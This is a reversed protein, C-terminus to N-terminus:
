LSIPGYRCTLPRMPELRYKLCSYRVFIRSRGAAANAAEALGRLELPLDAEGIRAVSDATGIKEAQQSLLRLPAFGFRVITLAAGFVILCLPIAALGTGTLLRWEVDRLLADTASAHQGVILLLAQQGPADAPQALFYFANDLGDTAETNTEGPKIARLFAAGFSDQM